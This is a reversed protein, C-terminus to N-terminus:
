LAAGVQDAIREATVPTLLIGNRLHGYALYLRKSHWAGVHLEDSGPRFGIWTESPTTESLHPLLFGAKQALAGTIGADIERNFGVRETSAGVILLGNARQIVYTHGQRIITDCTHLPQQYGILHGKVPEVSPIRPVGNVQISHSWAGAAIVLADYDSSGKTTGVSAASEGIEASQIACHQVVTVGLERCASALAIVAERPNVVADNPYFRAAILDQDRVGPWFTRVTDRKVPKSRIGMGAQIAARRELAEAEEESFAVDLAGCEQYDIALKTSAELERIFKPYLGRSEIVLSAFESPSEVEGGPSLMGAAAWSAEGGVEAKEFVTVRVGRQALRWAIALGIIGGGAVAASRV